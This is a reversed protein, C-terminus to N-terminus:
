WHHIIGAIIFLNTIIYTLVIISRICAIQDSEQDTVGSKEGLAKSWVRWLRFKTSPQTERLKPIV